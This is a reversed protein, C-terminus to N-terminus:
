PEPRKLPAIPLLLLLIRLRIKLQNRLHRLSAKLHRLPLTLLLLLRRKQSKKPFLPPKTQQIVQFKMLPALRQILRITMLAPLLHRLHRLHIPHLRNLHRLQSHQSLLRQNLHRLLLKRKLLSPQITRMWQTRLIPRRLKM